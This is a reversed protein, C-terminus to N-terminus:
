FAMVHIVHLNWATVILGVLTLGLPVGVRLRPPSLCWVGYCLAFAGAKLPVMALLVYEEVVHGLIPHAEIAGVSLGVATTAVDGIGFFLVAGIWLTAAYAALPGEAAQGM